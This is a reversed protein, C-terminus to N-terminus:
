AISAGIMSSSARVPSSTELAAVRAGIHVALGTLRGEMVECEGTIEDLVEDQDGIWPLHDM